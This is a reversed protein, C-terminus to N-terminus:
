SDYCTTALVHIPLQSQHNESGISAMADSSARMFCRWPISAMYVHPSDEEGVFTWTHLYWNEPCTIRVFEVGELDLHAWRRDSMYVYFRTYWHPVHISRDTYIILSIFSFIYVEGCRWWRNWWGVKRWLDAGSFVSRWSRASWVSHERFLMRHSYLCFCIWGPAWHLWLAICDRSSSPLDFHEVQWAARFLM